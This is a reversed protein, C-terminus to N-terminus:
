PRKRSFQYGCKTDLVVRIKKAWECAESILRDVDIGKERAAKEVRKGIEKVSLEM